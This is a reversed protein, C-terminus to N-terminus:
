TKGDASVYFTYNKIWEYQNDDLRPLFAPPFLPPSLAM